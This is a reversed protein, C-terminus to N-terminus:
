IKNKDGKFGAIAIATEKNIIDLKEVLSKYIKDNSKIGSFLSNTEKFISNLSNKLVTIEAVLEVAKQRREELSITAM